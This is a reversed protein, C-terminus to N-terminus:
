LNCSKVRTVENEPLNHLQFICVRLPFQEASFEGFNEVVLMKEIDQRIFVIPRLELLLDIGTVYGILHPQHEVAARGHM